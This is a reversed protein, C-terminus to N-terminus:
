GFKVQRVSSPRKANRRLHEPLGMTPAWQGDSSTIKQIIGGDHYFILKELFKWLFRGIPPAFRRRAKPESQPIQRIREQRIAEIGAGSQTSQRREAGGPLLRVSRLEALGSAEKLQADLSNGNRRLVLVAVSRLGDDRYFFEIEDAIQVIEVEKEIWIADDDVGSPNVLAWVSGSNELESM